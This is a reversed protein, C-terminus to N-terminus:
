HRSPAHPSGQIREIQAALDKAFQIAVPLPIALAMLQGDALTFGIGLGEGGETIRGLAISVVQNTTESPM